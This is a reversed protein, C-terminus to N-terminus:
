LSSVDLYLHAPNITKKTGRQGGWFLAWVLRYPTAGAESFSHTRLWLSSVHLGCRRKLAASTCAPASFSHTHAVFPM